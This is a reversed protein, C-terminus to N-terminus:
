RRPSASSPPGGATGTAALGYFTQATRFRETAEKYALQQYASTGLDEEALADRYEPATRNARQREARMLLRVRDAELHEGARRAAALYRDGAEGYAQTALSLSEQKMLEDAGAEKAGASAFLDAALRNAEAKIARERYAAARRRAQEVSSRASAFVDGARKAEQAAIEYDAQTESFLREALGYESRGLAASAERQKKEAWAFLVPARQHGASQEADRRASTMREQAQGAAARELAVFRTGAERAGQKYMGLAEQFAAKAGTPDRDLANDAEDEKQRASVFSQPALRRADVREAEHRASAVMARARQAEAYDQKPVEPGKAQEAERYSREAEEFLAQARDFANQELASEANRQATGAKAWLSPVRRPAEGIEAATRAEGARSRATQAAARARDVDNKAQQYGTLAERYLQERRAGERQGDANEAAHDKEAAITFSPLREAGARSAAERAAFVEARLQAVPSPRPSRVLTPRYAIALAIVVLAGLAVGLWRSWAAFRYVTTPAAPARHRRPEEPSYVTSDDEMLDRPNGATTTSTAQAPPGGKIAPSGAVVVPPEAGSSPVALVTPDDVASAAPGTQVGSVETSVAAATPKAPITPWEARRITQVGVAPGDNRDATEEPGTSAAAEVERPKAEAELRLQAAAAHGPRLALAAGLRRLCAEVDGVQLLRRADAVLADARRAEAEVAVSATQMAQVYSRRAAVFLSRAAVHDQRGSAENAQAETSEGARWHESAYRSAQAEAAGRRAQAAAERAKEAEARAAERAKEAEVRAAERAKEAEVRAAERAKEAEVAERAKEAEARAAERAKEAEV